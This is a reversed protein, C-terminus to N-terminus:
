PTTGAPEDQKIPGSASQSDGGWSGTFTGDVLAEASLDDNSDDLVFMLSLTGEVGDADRALLAAQGPPLLTSLARECVQQTCTSGCASTDISLAMLAEALAECGMQVMLSKNSGNRSSESAAASLAKSALEGWPWLMPLSDVTVTDSARDYDLTATGTTGDEDDFVITPADGLSSLPAAELQQAKWTAEGQSVTLRGLLTAHQLSENAAQWLQETAVRPGVNAQRLRDQLDSQLADAQEAQKLANALLVAPGDQADVGGDLGGDMGEVGADTDAGADMGGDVGLGTGADPAPEGAPNARLTKDLTDLLFAVDLAALEQESMADTQGLRSAFADQVTSGLGPAEDKLVARLEFEGVAELPMDVLPVVVRSARGAVIQIGDMCGSALVTGSTSLGEVKFVYSDHAALPQSIAGKDPFAIRQDSQDPSVGDCGQAGEGSEDRIVTLFRRALPRRGEHPAEVEVAGFGRPSVTVSVLVPEAGEADIRVSFSGSTRGSFVTNRAWGLEDTEVAVASLGADEVPGEIAFSVATDAIPEEDLSVLQVRIVERAEFAMEREADGALKLQRDVVQVNEDPSDADTVDGSLQASDCGTVPGVGGLAAVAVFAISRLQLM